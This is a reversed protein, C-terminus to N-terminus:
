APLAAPLALQAGSVREIGSLDTWSQVGTFGQATLLARVAQAQDYGHELLVWGGPHLHRHAGAALLRLASLGDAHDTLADLPEFPLDGQSLHPDAAVIYPPNAVILDFRHQGLPAYWSGQYFAPQVRHLAANQRAVDLAAHSIDTASVQLDHRTRALAIAVAGSGTGLDVVRAGPHAHALALEVLLETDARPILVDPTVLLALGYFERRGLIYAVPEGTSRRAFAATVRQAEEANLVHETRTILQERSLRLAHAVLLRNDLRDFPAAQMVHAVSMGATVPPVSAPHPVLLTDHRSM